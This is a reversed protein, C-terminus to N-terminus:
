QSISLGTEDKKFQYLFYLDSNTTFRKENSASGFLYLSQIQMRECIKVIENINGKVIAIM